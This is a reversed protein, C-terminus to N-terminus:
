LNITASMIAADLTPFNKAAATPVYFTEWDENLTVEFLDLQVYHKPSLKYIVFRSGMPRNRYVDGFSPYNMRKWIPTPDSPGSGLYAIVHYM